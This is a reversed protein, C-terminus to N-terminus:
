LNCDTSGSATAAAGDREEPRATTAQRDELERKLATPDNICYQQALRTVIMRRKWDSLIRSVNERAIGAMAALDSQRIPHCIIIRGEGADEGLLQTLELLARAVRAQANMFSAAALTENTERLRAALANVLCRFLEPRTETATKFVDRSIFSLECDKVAVATASRPLGDIVALEGVMEGPKIFSIILEEGEPSTVLIKLLGKELRYCGDGANGVRFLAEDARVYHPAASAFLLSSLAGPLTPLIAAHDTRSVRNADLALSTRNSVSLKQYANHLHVKVTGEAISAERAIQKNSLGAAVLNAIQQERQTLLTQTSEGDHCRASRASNSNRQEQATQRTRVQPASKFIAYM